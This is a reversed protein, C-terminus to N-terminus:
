SGGGDPPGENFYRLLRRRRERRYALWSRVPLVVVVVLTVALCGILFWLAWDIM